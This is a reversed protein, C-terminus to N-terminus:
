LLADELRTTEFIPAGTQWDRTMLENDQECSITLLLVAFAALSLSIKAHHTKM